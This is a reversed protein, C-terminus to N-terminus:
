LWYGMKIGFFHDVFCLQTFTPYAKEKTKLWSEVLEVSVGIGAALDSATVKKDEMIKKLRTSITFREKETM